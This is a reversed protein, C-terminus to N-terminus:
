QTKAQCQREFDALPIGKFSEEFPELLKAPRAWPDSHLEEGRAFITIPGDASVVIIGLKKSSSKKSFRRASNYRAGRALVEDELANGDLICGFSVVEGRANIQVAGDVSAMGAIMDIDTSAPKIRHGSLKPPDETPDLVLTCGFKSQIARGVITAATDVSRSLAPDTLVGKIVAAHNKRASRFEGGVIHCIVKEQCIVDAVGRVFKAKLVCETVADASIGFIHTGDSLLEGKTKSVAMLKGIHKSDNMQVINDLLVPCNRNQVFTITGDPAHGEEVARSIRSLADLAGRFPFGTINESKEQVAGAIMDLTWSQLGIVTLQAGAAAVISTRWVAHLVNSLAKLWTPLVDSAEVNPAPLLFWRFQQPHAIYTESDFRIIGKKGYLDEPSMESCTKFETGLKLLLKDPDYVLTDQNSVQVILAVPCIGLYRSLAIQLYHIADSYYYDIKELTSTM